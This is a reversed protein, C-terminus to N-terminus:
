PRVTRDAPDTTGPSTGAVPRDAAGLPGPAASTKMMIFGRSLDGPVRLALRRDPESTCPQPADTCVYNYRPVYLTLGHDTILPDAPKHRVIPHPGPQVPVYVHWGLSHVQILFFGGGLGLGALTVRRRREPALAAHGFRLLVVAAGLLWVVEGGLRVAPMLFFWALAGVLGPVVFLWDRNLAALWIGPRFALVAVTVALPVVIFLNFAHWNPRNYPNYDNALNRRLWTPFWDWGERIARSAEPNESATTDRAYTLPWNRAFWARDDAIKWPVEVSFLETQLIPYGSLIVGRGMWVMVVLTPALISLLVLRWQRGGGDRVLRGLALLCAIFAYPALTLKATVGVGSLCLVAFGDARTRTSRATGFWLGALRLAVVFLLIFAVLDPSPSSAYYAANFALPPLCLLAFLDAPGHDRRPHWLNLCSRAMQFALGWLLVGPGLNHSRHVWPGVDLLSLYLFYSQNFGFGLHLNALGPVIAAEGGWRITPLHYFDADPTLIGAMARNALWLGASMLVLVVSWQEWRWRRIIGWWWRWQRALGWGGAVVFLVLPKWDVAWGLHWVQLFVLLSGFGLWVGDILDGGHGEGEGLLRRQIWAGWGLLLALLVLWIGQIALMYLLMVTADSLSAM